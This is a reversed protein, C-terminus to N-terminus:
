NLTIKYLSFKIRNEVIFFSSDFLDDKDHAVNLIEEQKILNSSLVQLLGKIEPHLKHILLGKMQFYANFKNFYELVIKLFNILKLKM